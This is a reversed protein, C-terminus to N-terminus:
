KSLTNSLHINRQSTALHQAGKGKYFAAVFGSKFDCPERCAVATKVLIPHWLRAIEQPAAAAVDKTIADPGAAKGKKGRRLLHVLEYRDVVNQINLLPPPPIHQANYEERIQDIEM